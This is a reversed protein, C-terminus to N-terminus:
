PRTIRGEPTIERHNRHKAAVADDFKKQFYARISKYGGAVLYLASVVVSFYLLGTQVNTM